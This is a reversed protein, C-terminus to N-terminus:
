DAVGPRLKVAGTAMALYVSRVLLVVAGTAAVGLTDGGLFQEVAREAPLCTHHPDGGM